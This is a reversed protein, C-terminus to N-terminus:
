SSSGVLWINATSLLWFLVAMLIWGVTLMGFRALNPMAKVCYASTLALMIVCVFALPYFVSEYDTFESLQRSIGSLSLAPLIIAGAWFAWFVARVAVEKRTLGSAADAM